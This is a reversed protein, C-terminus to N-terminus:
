SQRTEEGPDVLSDLRDFNRRHELAPFRTRLDALRMMDVDATVVGAGTPLEALVEGWPGVIM